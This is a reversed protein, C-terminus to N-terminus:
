WYVPFMHLEFAHLCKDASHTLSIDTSRLDTAIEAIKLSKPHWEHSAIKLTKAHWEHSAPSKKILTNKNDVRYHDAKGASVVADYALPPFMM